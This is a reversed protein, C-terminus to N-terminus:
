LYIRMSIRQKSESKVLVEVYYVLSSSRNKNLETMNLDEGGKVQHIMEHDEDFLNFEVESFRFIDDAKDHKRKLSVDEISFSDMVYEAGTSIFSLEREAYMVSYLDNPNHFKRSDDIQEPALAVVDQIRYSKSIAEGNIVQNQHNLFDQKSIKYEIVEVGFDWYTYQCHSVMVTDYYLYYNQDEQVQGFCAM